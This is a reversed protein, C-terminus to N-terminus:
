GVRESRSEEDRSLSPTKLASLNAAYHNHSSFSQKVGSPLERYASERWRESVGRMKSESKM